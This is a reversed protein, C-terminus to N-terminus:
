YVGGLGEWFGRLIYFRATYAYCKPKIGSFRITPLCLKKPYYETIFKKSDSSKITYPVM